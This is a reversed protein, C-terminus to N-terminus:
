GFAAAGVCFAPGEGDGALFSSKFIQGGSFRRGSSGSQPEALSRTVHCVSTKGVM